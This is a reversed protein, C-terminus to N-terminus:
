SKKADEESPFSVELYEHFLKIMGPTDALIMSQVKNKDPDVVYESLGKLIDLMAKQAKSIRDGIKIFKEEDEESIGDEAMRDQQKTLSEQLLVRTRMRSSWDSADEIGMKRFKVSVPKEGGELTVELNIHM